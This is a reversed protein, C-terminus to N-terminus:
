SSIAEPPSDDGECLCIIRIIFFIMAVRARRRVAQVVVLTGKRVEVEVGSGVIGGLTSGVEVISIMM